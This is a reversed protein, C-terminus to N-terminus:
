ALFRSAIRHAFHCKLLQQGPPLLPLLVLEPHPQQGEGAGPSPSSALVGSLDTMGGATHLVSPPGSGRSPSSHPRWARASTHGWSLSVSSCAARPHWSSGMPTSSAGNETASCSWSPPWARRNRPSSGSSRGLVSSSPSAGSSGPRSVTFFQDGAVRQQSQKREVRHPAPGQLFQGPGARGLTSKPPHAPMTSRPASPAPLPRSPGPGPWLAAPLHATIPRFTMWVMRFRRSLMLPPSTFAALCTLPTLRSISAAVRVTSRNWRFVASAQERATRERPLSPSAAPPSRRGQPDFGAQRLGHVQLAVAELQLRGGLVRTFAAPMIFYATSRALRVGKLPAFQHLTRGLELGHPHARLLPEGPRPSMAAAVLLLKSWAVSARISAWVPSSSRSFSNPMVLAM